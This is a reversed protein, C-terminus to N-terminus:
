YTSARRLTPATRGALVSLMSTGNIASQRHQLRKSGETSLFRAAAIGSWTNRSFSRSKESLNQGAASSLTNIHLLYYDLRACPFSVDMCRFNLLKHLNPQAEPVQPKARSSGVPATHLIFPLSQKESANATRAIPARQPSYTYQQPRSTPRRAHRAPIISPITITSLDPTVTVPTISTM